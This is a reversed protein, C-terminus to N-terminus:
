PQTVGGSFKSSFFSMSRFRCDSSSPGTPIALKQQMQHWCPCNWPQLSSDDSPKRVYITGLSPLNLCSPISSTPSRFCRKWKHDNWCSPQLIALSTVHYSLEFPWSLLRTQNTQTQSFKLMQIVCTVLRGGSELFPFFIPGDRQSRFSLTKFLKSSCTLSTSNDHGNKSFFRGCEEREPM